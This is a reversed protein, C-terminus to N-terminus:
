FSLPFFSSSTHSPLSLSLFHFLAVTAVASLAIILPTIGNKHCLPAATGSALRGAAGSLTLVTSM